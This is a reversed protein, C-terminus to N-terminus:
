LQSEPLLHQAVEQSFRASGDLPTPHMSHGHHSPLYDRACMSQRLVESLRGNATFIYRYLLVYVGNGAYVKGSYGYSRFFPM